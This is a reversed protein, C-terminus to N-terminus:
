DWAFYTAPDTDQPLIIQISMCALRTPIPVDRTINLTAM